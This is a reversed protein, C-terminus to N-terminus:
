QHSSKCVCNPKVKGHSCKVPGPELFLSLKEPPCIENYARPQALVQKIPFPNAMVECLDVQMKRRLAVVSLRLKSEKM